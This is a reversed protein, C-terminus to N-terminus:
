LLQKLISTLEAGKINHGIIIGSENLLYNQPLGGIEYLKYLPSQTGKLDSLHEWEVIRDDKIAKLWAHRDEEKDLSIAVIEFNKHKFQEYIALYKPNEERCPVCWSAWFDLLVIKGRFSELAVERGVTDLLKFSPAPSGIALKMYNSLAREIKERREQNLETKPIQALIKKFRRANYQNMHREILTASFLSPANNEIFDTDFETMKEMYQQFAEQHAIAEDDTLTGSMMKEMYDANMALAQIRLDASEQWYKSYIDNLSDALIQASNLDKGSLYITPHSLYFDRFKVPQNPIGNNQKAKDFVGITVITPTNFQGKFEFKGATVVASDRIKYDIILYAFNEERLDKIDGKIIFDVQAFLSMPFLLFTSLLIKM